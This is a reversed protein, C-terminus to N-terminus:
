IVKGSSVDSYFADWTCWTFYDVFAPEKKKNRVKGVGVKKMVVEAAKPMLDYYDSQSAVMIYAELGGRSRLYADNTDGYLSAKGDEGTKLFFHMDDSFLTAIMVVLGDDRRYAMWQITSPLDSAQRCAGPVMWFPDVGRGILYSVEELALLSGLDASLRHKPEPSTVSVFCGIGAEDPEIAIKDGAGVIVPIDNFSITSDALKWM